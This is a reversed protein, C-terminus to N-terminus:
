VATLRVQTSPVPPRPHPRTGLLCRAMLVVRATGKQYKCVCVSRVCLGELAFWDPQKLFLNNKQKRGVWYGLCTSEGGGWWGM